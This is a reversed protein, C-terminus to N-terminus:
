RKIVGLFSGVSIINLIVDIRSGEIRNRFSSVPPTKQLKTIAIRRKQTFTYRILQPFM